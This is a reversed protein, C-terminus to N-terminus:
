SIRGRVGGAGVASDCVRACRGGGGGGGRAKEKGQLAVGCQGYGGAWREVAVFADNGEEVMTFMTFFTHGQMVGSSCQCCGFLLPPLPSRASRWSFSSSPLFSATSMPPPLPPPRSLPPPLPNTISATTTIVLLLLLLLLLLLCLM